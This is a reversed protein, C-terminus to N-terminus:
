SNVATELDDESNVRSPWTMTDHDPLTEIDCGVSPQVYTCNVNQSGHVAYWFAGGRTPLVYLDCPTQHSGYTARTTYPLM